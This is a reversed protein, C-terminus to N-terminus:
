LICRFCDLCSPPFGFVQCFCELSLHSPKRSHLVGICEIVFVCMSCVDTTVRILNVIPVRGPWGGHSQPLRPLAHQTFKDTLLQAPKAWAEAPAQSEGTHRTHQQEEKRPRGRAGKDRAAECWAQYANNLNRQDEEAGGKDPHTKLSM